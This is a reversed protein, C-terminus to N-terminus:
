ASSRLPGGCRWSRSSPCWCPRYAARGRLPAGAGEGCRQIWFSGVGRGDSRKFAALDTESKKEKEVSRRAPLEVTRHSFRVMYQTTLTNATAAQHLDACHTGAVVLPSGPAVLTGCVSRRLKEYVGDECIQKRDDGLHKM